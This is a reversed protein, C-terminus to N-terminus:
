VLENLTLFELLISKGYVEPLGDGNRSHSDFLYFNCSNTPKFIAVANGNSVFIASAFTDLAKELAFDLNHTNRNDVSYTSNTSLPETYCTPFKSSFSYGRYSFYKPLDNYHPWPTDQSLRSQITSYMQDGLILVNDLDKSHTLKAHM